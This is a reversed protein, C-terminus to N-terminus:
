LSEVKDGVALELNPDSFLIYMKTNKNMSGNRDRTILNNSMMNILGLKPKDLSGILDFIYEAYDHNVTTYSPLTAGLTAVVGSMESSNVQHFLLDEVLSATSRQIGGNYCAINLVVTMGEDVNIFEDIDTRSFSGDRAWSTWATYSGHGRYNIIGKGQNILSIIDRNTGGNGGYVTQFELGRQNPGNRVREMNATYKGPYQEKHAALVTQKNSYGSRVLNQYYIAKSVLLEAQELSGAPLRGTAIDIYYDSDMLSYYTDGPTGSMEALPIVKENGLLLVSQVGRENYSQKIKNKIQISTAKSSLYEVFSREGRNSYYENLKEAQAQFSEPAIIMMSGPTKEEVNFSDAAQKGNVVLSELQILDFDTLKGYTKYDSSKSVSKMVLSLNKVFSVKGTSENHQFPSVEVQLVRTKGIKGYGTVLVVPSRSLNKVLQYSPAKGEHTLPSEGAIAYPLPLLEKNKYSEVEVRYRGEGVAVLLRIKPLAVEGPAPRARNKKFHVVSRRSFSDNVSRVEIDGRDIDVDLQIKKASSSIVNINQGFVAVPCLFVLLMSYGLMYSKM